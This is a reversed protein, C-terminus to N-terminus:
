RYVLWNLFAWILGLVVGALVALGFLVILVLIVEGISDSNHEQNADKSYHVQQTNSNKKPPEYESVKKYVYFDAMKDFDDYKGNNNWDMFDREEPKLIGSTNYNTM